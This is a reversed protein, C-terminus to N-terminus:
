IPKGPEAAPNNVENTDDEDDEDDDDVENDDEAGDPDADSEDPRGSIVQENEPEANNAGLEEYQTREEVSM